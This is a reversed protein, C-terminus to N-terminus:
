CVGLAEEEKRMEFQLENINYKERLEEKCRQLDQRWADIVSKNTRKKATLLRNQKERLKRGDVRTRIPVNLVRLRHTITGAHRYGLLEAIEQCSMWDTWYLKFITQDVIDM